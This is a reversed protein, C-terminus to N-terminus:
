EPGDLPNRITNNRFAHPKQIDATEASNENKTLKKSCVYSNLLDACESRQGYSFMPKCAFIGN